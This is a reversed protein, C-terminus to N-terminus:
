AFAPLSHRCRLSYDSETVTKLNYTILQIKDHFTEMIIIIMMVIIIKDNNDIIM